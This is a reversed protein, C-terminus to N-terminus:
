REQGRGASSQDKNPAKQAADKLKRLGRQQIIEVPPMSHIHQRLGAALKQDEKSGESLEVIAESLLLNLNTRRAKAKIIGPFDPIPKGTALHDLVEKQRVALNRNLRQRKGAMAYIRAREKSSVKRLNHYDGQSLSRHVKGRVKKLCM